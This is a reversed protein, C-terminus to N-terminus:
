RCLGGINTNTMAPQEIQPPGADTPMSREAYKAHQRNAEPECHVTGGLKTISVNPLLRMQIHNRAVCISVGNGALMELVGPLNM